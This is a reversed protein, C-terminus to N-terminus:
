FFRKILNLLPSTWIETHTKGTSKFKSENEVYWIFNRALAQKNSYKPKWGLIEQAKTTDVFSEKTSTQYIWDYFPILKLSSLLKLVFLVVPKPFSIVKKNFGAITLIHQFNQRLTSFKEAGINFETNSKNSMAALWIAECLDEVDLLQYLNDGKGLIPFNREEKAFQYLISFVGLREKGVFTRPRIICIHTGLQRYKKCVHEAELKAEGYNGVGKLFSDEFIPSPSSLDYIATTSIHVVKKNYKAAALCINNTGDVETSFIEKKSHLPLAAAAHIVIDAEEVLPEVEYFNRIDAIHFQVNYNPKVLDLVTVPQEKDQLYKALNTGLFGAGGTILFKLKRNRGM